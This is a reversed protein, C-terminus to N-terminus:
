IKMGIQLAAGYESDDGKFGLIDVSILDFPSLGIGATILDEEVNNLDTRYGARLQAHDWANFGIGASAYKVPELIDGMEDHETLDSQAVVSWLKGQYGLGATVRTKLEFEDGTETKVTKSDLNQAVLSATWRKEEDFNAIFGIDANMGSEDARYKSDVADDAEFDQVTSSYGYVDIRQYKLSIGTGISHLYPSGIEFEKGFAFGADSVSYGITRVESTLNNEDFTQAGTQVDNLYADDTYNLLGGLRGSQKIFLATSLTDNPIAVTFNIGERAYATKGDLENLSARLNTAQTQAEAMATPGPTINNIDDYADQVDDIDDIIDDPDALHGMVGLNVYFDDNSDFRTMLAPNNAANTFDGMIDNPGQATMGASASGASTLTIIASSICLALKTKNNM